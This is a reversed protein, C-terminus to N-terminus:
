RAFVVRRWAEVADNQPTSRAVDLIGLLPSGDDNWWIAVLDDTVLCEAVGGRYVEQMRRVSRDSCPKAKEFEYEDRFGRDFAARAKAASAFVAYVISSSKLEPPPSTKVDCAYQQTAGFDRVLWRDAQEPRCPNAQPIVNARTAPPSKEGDGQAVIAVAVAAAVATALAAAVWTRARGRLPKPLPADVTPQEAGEPRTPSRHIPIDTRAIGGDFTVDAARELAAAFASATQFRDAPDRALARMVADTVEPPVDPAVARLPRPDDTVRRSLVELPDGGHPGFPAQGSLLEYLVAAVAYVDTAPSLPGIAPSAQEPAMFAPTGVIMGTATMRAAAPGIAKAIGFDAVKLLEHDGFLLNGPKVDRHLIGHQHAHELGHLAALAYGCARAPPIEQRRIRAALTGGTLREMVLAFVDAHEVYDYVRVVHPHDLLALTRAEAAFREAAAGDTLMESALRKIAVERGLRRHRALYVVAFSGRGLPEGIEYAPLAEALRRREEDPPTATPMM